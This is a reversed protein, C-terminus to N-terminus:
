NGVQSFHGILELEKTDDTDLAEELVNHHEEDIETELGSEQEDEESEFEVMYYLYTENETRELFTNEMLVNRDELTQIVEEEREDLEEFWERLLEVKDDRVRTKNMLTTTM